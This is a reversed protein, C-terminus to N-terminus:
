QAAYKLFTSNTPYDDLAAELLREPTARAGQVSKTWLRQWMDQPRNASEVESKRGGAREWLARADQADPYAEALELILDKPLPVASSSVNPGPQTKGAEMFLDTSNRLLKILCEAAARAAFQRYRDDKLTTAFDSVGKAVVVPVNTITGLVALGSAEMDIALIKRNGTALRDFLSDDEVVKAGTAMPGVHVTFDSARHLVKGSGLFENGKETITLTSTIWKRKILRAQVVPWDPCFTEWEPIARPALGAALKPMVWDEQAELTLEPRESLWSRNYTTLTQMRQIWNASPNFQLQDGQFVEGDETVVIKGADYSWLRDAFIVDGLAVKSQRGACIGCMALCKYNDTALRTAAVAIAMERGMATLWTARVAFTKGTEDAFQTDAVTQGDSTPTEQWGPALIGDSVRMLQDYEDKLACIILVDPSKVASASQDSMPARRTNCVKSVVMALFRFYIKERLCM